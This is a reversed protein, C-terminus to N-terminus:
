KLLSDALIKAAKEWDKKILEWDSNVHYCKEPNKVTTGSDIPGVVALYEKTEKTKKTDYHFTLAYFEKGQHTFKDFSNIESPYDDHNILYEYLCDKAYSEIKLYKKPIDKRRGKELLVKIIDNRYEKDNLYYVLKKKEIPLDNLIRATIAESKYWNNKYDFNLVANTLWDVNKHDSMLTNMFRLSWYVEDSFIYDNEKAKSVRSKYENFYSKTKNLLDSYYDSYFKSKYNDEAQIYSNLLILIRSRM